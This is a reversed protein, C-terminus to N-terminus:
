LRFCLQIHMASRPNVPRRHHGQCNEESRTPIKRCGHLQDLRATWHHIESVHIHLAHHLEQLIVHGSLISLLGCAAQVPINLLLRGRCEKDRSYDSCRITMMTGALLQSHSLAAYRKFNAACILQELGQLSPLRMFPLPPTINARRRWKHRSKQKSSDTSTDAVMDCACASAIVFM